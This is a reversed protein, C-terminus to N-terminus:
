APGLRPVPADERLRCYSPVWSRRVLEDAYGRYDFALADRVMGDVDVLRPSEPIDRLFLRFFPAVLRRALRVGAPGLFNRRQGVHSLEDVTIEYLLERVRTRAEPEDGLLDDLLADFHRYFTVGLLETVFAVANTLVGPLAPFLRYLRQKTPSLPVWEVHELRVTRFMEEFLRIHCFEEALHYRGIRAITSRAEALARGADWAASIGIWEHRAFKYLCTWLLVGRDITAPGDTLTVYNRYFAAPDSLSRHSRVPQAQFGQLRARKITLDKERELLAGSRARTYHLYDEFNQDRQARTADTFISRYRAQTLEPVLAPGKEM